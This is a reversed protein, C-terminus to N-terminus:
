NKLNLIKLSSMMHFQQEVKNNKVNLVKLLQKELNEATFPEIKNPMLDFRSRAFFEETERVYGTSLVVNGDEDVGNSKIYVTIDVLDRVIGMSRSDGAPIIQDTNKDVSTHGIFVVTYGCSTLKDIELWFEEQLKVM